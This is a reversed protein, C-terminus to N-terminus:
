KKSYTKFNLSGSGIFTEMIKTFQFLHISENSGGLLEKEM